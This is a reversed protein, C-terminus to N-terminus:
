QKSVNPMVLNFKKNFNFYHADLEISESDVNSKLKFNRLYKDEGIVFEIVMNDIDETITKSSVKSYVEASKEKPIKLQYTDKSIKKVWKPNEKVIELYGNLSKMIDMEGLQSSDMTKASYNGSSNKIYITAQLDTVGLYFEQHEDSMDINIKCKLNEKMDEAIMAMKFDKLQDNEKSGSTLEVELSNVSNTLTLCDTLKKISSTNSCSTILMGIGIILGTIILTMYKKM